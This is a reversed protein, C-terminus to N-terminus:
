IRIGIICVDDVQELQGKWETLNQELLKKQEAMPTERFKEFLSKLLNYKFKKGHPGGFQDAFGDTFLYFSDDKELKIEHDTFSKSNLFKGVPQKDAKIENLGNKSIIVLPNNAGSWNLTATQDPNYTLRVMSIDMGDKIEEESKEFEQLILERTKDLILHPITLNFEHLARNLANNCVVSVMAGPVGHGTCDAAAILIKNDKQQLWYFDGAVIDKPKYLVFSNPILDDMIKQSPLIAKQIRLAYAISDTIEKNKHSLSDKQRHIILEYERNLGVFYFALLFNILLAMFFFIISFIKKTELPVYIMPEVHKLAYMQLIFFGSVIFFVLVREFTSKFLIVGFLVMAILAMHNYTGEGVAVGAMSIFLLGSVFAFYKSFKFLRFHNCILPILMSALFILVPPLMTVGNFYVEIPIYLIMVVPTIFLLRNLFIVERFELVGEDPRLGTRSVKNWQLILKARM